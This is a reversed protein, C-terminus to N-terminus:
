YWCSNSIKEDLKNLKEDLEALKEKLEKADNHDFWAEGILEALKKRLEQADTTAQNFIIAFLSVGFLTCVWDNKMVGIAFILSSPALALMKKLLVSECM